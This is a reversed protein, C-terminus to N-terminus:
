HATVNFANTQTSQGSGLSDIWKLTAGDTVLYEGPSVFEQKGKKNVGTYVKLVAHAEERRGLTGIDWKFGSKNGTRNTLLEFTGGNVSVLTVKLNSGFWGGLDVNSMSLDDVNLVRYRFFWEQYTAVPVDTPGETLQRLLVPQLIRATVSISHTEYAAALPLATALGVAILVVMLFPVPRRM